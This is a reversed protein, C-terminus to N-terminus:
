VLILKGEVEGFATYGAEGDRVKIIKNWTKGEDDSEYVWM